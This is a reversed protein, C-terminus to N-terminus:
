LDRDSQGPVDNPYAQHSSEEEPAQVAYKQQAGSSDPEVLRVIVLSM